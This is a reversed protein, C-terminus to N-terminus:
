ITEGYGASWGTTINQEKPNNLKKAEALLKEANNFDHKTKEYIAKNIKKFLDLTLTVETGDMTRWLENEPFLDLTLLRALEDYKMRSNLDTHWWYGDVEVGTYSAKLRLEKIEEWVENTQTTHKEEVLKECVEWEKLDDNWIHTDSPPLGSCGITYKDIVWFAGNIAITQLIQEKERETILFTDDTIEEKRNIVSIQKNTLLFVQM